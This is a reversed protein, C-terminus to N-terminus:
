VVGLYRDIAAIEAATRESGYIMMGREGVRTYNSGAFTSLDVAAGGTWEAIAQFEPGLPAKITIDPYVTGATITASVNLPGPISLEGGLGDLLVPSLTTSVPGNVSCGVNPATLDLLRGFLDTLTAVPLTIAVGTDWLDSTSGASYASNWLNTSIASNTDLATAVQWEALTYSDPYIYGFVAASSAINYDSVMDAVPVFTKILPADSLCANNKIELGTPNNAGDNDAIYINETNSVFSNNYIKAGVTGKIYAAIMKSSVILNGFFQGNAHSNTPGGKLIAGYGCGFIKNCQIVANSIWGCIIAHNTNAALESDYYGAGYITNHEITATITNQNTPAGDDGCSLLYGSTAHSSITNGRITTVFAGAAASLNFVLPFSNPSLSTYTNGIVSLATAGSAHIVGSTTGGVAAAISVTNDHFKISPWTHLPSINSIFRGNSAANAINIVCGYVELPVSLGTTAHGIGTVLNGFNVTCYIIKYTTVSARLRWVIGAGSPVNITCNYFLIDGTANTYFTNSDGSPEFIIGFFRYTGSGSLYILNDPASTSRIIVEGSAVFVLPKDINYGQTSANTEDYIGAGIQIVANNPATTRAYDLTLWATEATLGNASNSGSKSVFRTPTPVTVTYKESVPTATGYRAPVRQTDDAMTMGSENGWNTGTGDVAEVITTTTLYLHHGNGSADLEFAGGVNIGPWYAWLVGARHVYIDWCDASITLTGDVTCTPATGGGVTIVDTTLLGTVTGSGPRMIITTTTIATLHHGLGSADPETTQGINNGPWYAWLVGARHVYVNYCDTGVGFTLIGNTGCTPVTGTATIVDTTLLGTATASGAGSFKGPNTFRSGKVQPTASGTPRYAILRGDAIDGKYYALLAGTQLDQVWFPREAAGTVGRGTKGCISRFINRTITSM